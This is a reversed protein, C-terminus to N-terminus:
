SLELPEGKAAFIKLVAEGNLADAALGYVTETPFAVVQGARLLDAAEDLAADTASDAVVPPAELRGISFSVTSPTTRLLKTSMTRDRPSLPVRRLSLRWVPRLLM